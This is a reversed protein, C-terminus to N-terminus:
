EISLRPRAWRQQMHRFVLMPLVRPQQPPLAPLRDSQLCSPLHTRRTGAALPSAPVAGQTAAPAPAPPGLPRRPGSFSDMFSVDCTEVVLFGDAASLLGSGGSGAAAGAVDM